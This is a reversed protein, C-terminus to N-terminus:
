LFLQIYEHGIVHVHLHHIVNFLILLFFFYVFIVLMSINTKRNFVSTRMSSDYNINPNISDEQLRLHSFSFLYLFVCATKNADM